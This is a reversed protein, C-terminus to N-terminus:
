KGQPQLLLVFCCGGALGELKLIDCTVKVESKAKNERSLCLKRDKLHANGSRITANQFDSLLEESDALLETITMGVMREPTLHFMEAAFRNVKQLLGQTNVQIVAVAVAQMCLENFDANLLVGELNDGAALLVNLVEAMASARVEDSKSFATLSKKNLCELVGHSGIPIALVERTYFSTQEDIDPNFMPHEEAKPVNQTSKSTFSLSAIGRTLPMRIAHSAGLSYLSYLQSKSSDILFVTVRECALQVQIGSVVAQVLPGILAEKASDISGRNGREQYSKLKEGIGAGTLGVALHKAIQSMVVMDTPGFPRKKNSCELVGLFESNLQIPVCCVNQTITSCIRDYAPDFSPDKYANQITIAARNEYVLSLHGTDRPIILQEPIDATVAKSLFSESQPDYVYLVVREVELVDLLMEMVRPLFVESANQYAINRSTLFFSLTEFLITKTQYFLVEKSVNGLLFKVTKQFDERTLQADLLSKIFDAGTFDEFLNQALGPDFAIPNSKAPRVYGKQARFATSFSTMPAVAAESQYTRTSSQAKRKRGKRKVNLMGVPDYRFSNDDEEPMSPLAPLSEKLEETVYSTLRRVIERLETNHMQLTAIKQEYLKITNRQSKIQLDKDNLSDKLDLLRTQITEHQSQLAKLDRRTVPHGSSRSSPISVHSDTM